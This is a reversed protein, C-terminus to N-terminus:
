GERVGRPVYHPANKIGIGILFGKEDVNYIDDTTIDSNEM